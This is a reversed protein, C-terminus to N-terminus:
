LDQGEQKPEQHLSRAICDRLRERVRQLSKYVASTSLSHSRAIEAVSQGHRYRNQIMMRDKDGLKTLCRTLMERRDAEGEAREIIDAKLLRITEESFYIRSRSQRQYYKKVELYAVGCAWKAFDRTPDYNERKLWLALSTEQLVDDRDVASPVLARVFCQLSRNSTQLLRAFDADTM